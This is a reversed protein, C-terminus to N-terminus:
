MEYSQRARLYKEDDRRLLDPNLGREVALWYSLLQLPVAYLIPTLLEAAPPLEVLEDVVAGLEHDGYEALAVTAAGVTHAARLADQVRRRAPGPPALGVVVTGQDVPAIPGHLFYESSYGYADSYNAERMKLAAEWASALNPGSGLFLWRRMHPYRQALARVVAEDRLLAGVADPLRRAEETLAASDRSPEAQAVAAPWFAALAATYSATHALSRDDDFGSWLVYDSLEGLPSEKHGTVALVAAGSGEARRAAALTAVKRGSQSFVVATTGADAPYPYTSFEFSEVARVETEAPGLRRLWAEAVAAAHFSTGAGLLYIRRRGRLWEAVAVAAGYGLELAGRLLAPQAHIEQHMFYPHAPRVEKPLQYATM